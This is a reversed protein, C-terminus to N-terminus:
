RKDHELTAMLMGDWAPPADEIRMGLRELLRISEQNQKDTITVIHQLRMEDFAFRIMTRCAESAYGQGWYDRGLKYYLEVEPTAFPQRPLVYFQLGVYGILHGDANLTVALTGCSDFDNTIAYKQIIAAREEKTRPVGPDYKWVDPHGELAEFAADIDDM